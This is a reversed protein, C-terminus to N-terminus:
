ATIVRAANLANQTISRHPKYTVVDVSIEPSRYPAHLTSLYEALESKGVYWM